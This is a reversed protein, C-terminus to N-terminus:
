RTRRGRYCPLRAMQQFSHRAKLKPKPIPPPKFWERFELSSNFKFYKGKNFLRELFKQIDKPLPSPLNSASYAPYITYSITSTDNNWSATTSSYPGVAMGSQESYGPVM